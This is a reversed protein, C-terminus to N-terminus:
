FKCSTGLRRLRLGMSMRSEFANQLLEEFRGLFLEWEEESMDGFSIDMFDHNHEMVSLSISKQLNGVKHNDGGGGVDDEEQLPSLVVHPYVAMSGSLPIKVQLKPPRSNTLQPHVELHQPLDSIDIAQEESCVDVRDMGFQLQNTVKDEGKAQKPVPDEIVHDFTQYISTSVRKCITELSSPAEEMGRFGRTMMDGIDALCLGAASARKLFITCLVLIRISSERLGLSLQTRLIEADKFPDLENIYEFELDSFPVYAQPWHLWEFYPNDLFEPLCLGHDIPVLQMAQISSYGHEDSTYSCGDPNIKKVLINGAHRDINLLRVDLIGIRHVSAVSFSSPGIDGADSDHTIFQQISAIQPPSPSSPVINSNAYFTPHSIKILATPPVGAFSQHDLLYAAVERVGTESARVSRILGREGLIRGGHGKSNNGLTSALEEDIPKVVAISEKGRNLLFAGGLESSLPVLDPGSAMAIAAEVVLAHAGPDGRGAIINVRPTSSVDDDM